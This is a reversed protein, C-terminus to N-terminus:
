KSIIGSVIGTIGILSISQLGIGAPETGLSHPGNQLHAEICFDQWKGQLGIQAPTASLLSGLGELAQLDSRGTVEGLNFTTSPRNFFYLSEGNGSFALNPGPPGSIIPRMALEHCKCRIGTM